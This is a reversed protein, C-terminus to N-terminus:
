PYLPVGKIRLLAYEQFKSLATVQYRSVRGSSVMIGTTMM